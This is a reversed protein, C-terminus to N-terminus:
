LGVLTCVLHSPMDSCYATIAMSTLHTNFELYIVSLTVLFDGGHKMTPVVCASIQKSVRRRVFVRRNSEDSWLVSKWRDLTWQEHKM